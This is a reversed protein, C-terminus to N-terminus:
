PRGRLAAGLLAIQRRYLPPEGKGQACQRLYGPVLALPLFAPLYASFQPQWARRFAVLEAEAQRQWGAAPEPQLARAASATQAHAERVLACLGWARGAREIQAFLVPGEGDGGLAATALRFLAGATDDIQALVAERDTPSPEELEKERAAILRELSAPPLPTRALTTALAQAVPHDRPAGRACDELVERWWQLRIFGMMPERVLTRVRALELNLAYLALLASRQAAPAFLASLFRDPDQRRVADACYGFADAMPSAAADPVSM